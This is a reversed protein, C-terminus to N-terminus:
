GGLTQPPGMAPDGYKWEAVLARATANEPGAWVVPVFLAAACGIAVVRHM